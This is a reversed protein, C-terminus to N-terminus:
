CKDGFSTGVARAAIVLPEDPPVQRQKGAVADMPASTIRSKQMVVVENYRGALLLSLAEHGFVTGLVRDAPVPTGGRQVHGLITARTELGTLDEIQRCLMQSIGGLRIPDPSSKIVREVVQKGGKPKAGEAVVVITFAKGRRSREQCIECVVEIEFAIEPILIVDAGSAVGSHLALWGANRGMLEVLMVRHHSSATTHIRDLAETATAVATQFGFTIETHMLDNDITKPVGVCRVGHRTLAAAATMTGDGGICVIADLQREAVHELVRQTVDEFIPEGNADVAVAFHSPNATNSTGLITGGQTLINSVSENDLRHMRNRILGLFGDEIGWVELGHKYLATKTVARIVANLGPCDGGGTLIGIRQINDTNSM